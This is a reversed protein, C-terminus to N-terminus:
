CVGALTNGTECERLSKALCILLVSGYLRYCVPILNSSMDDGDFQIEDCSFVSKM